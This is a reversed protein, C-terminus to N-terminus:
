QYLNHKSLRVKTDASQRLMLNDVESLIDTSIYLQTILSIVLLEIADVPIALLAWQISLGSIGWFPYKKM